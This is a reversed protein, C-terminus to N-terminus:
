KSKQRTISKEEEVKPQGVPQSLPCLLFINLYSGDFNGAIKEVRMLKQLYTKLIGDREIEELNIGEKL